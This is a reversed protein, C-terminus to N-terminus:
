IPPGLCIDIKGIPKSPESLTGLINFCSVKLFIVGETLPHILLSKVELVTRRGKLNQASFLSFYPLKEVVM